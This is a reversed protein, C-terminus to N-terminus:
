LEIEKTCQANNECKGFMNNGLTIHLIPEGSLGTHVPPPSVACPRPTLVAPEREREELM